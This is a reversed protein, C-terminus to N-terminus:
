DGADGGAEPAQEDESGTELARGATANEATLTGFYYGFIRGALPAAMEGGHGSNELFVSIAIEPSPWPAFGIFVSHDEGHPNQVTGTKGAVSIGPVAARKGSGKEGQVAELMGQRVVALTSESVNWSRRGESTVGRTLHPMMWRGNGGVAMAVTALKLPTTLLEGQGIALNLALGETWGRQGYRKDYWEPDPMFSRKEVPLDVGTPKDLGLKKMWESLRKVGLQRGLHYFYCDCSQAIAQVMDLRGHGTEKWCGYRRNGLIYFGPCYVPRDNPSVIGEELAAIATIIKFTSGPPYTAQVCRNILPYLKDSELAKWEQRSLGRAFANPDFSPNSAMALIGGDNVRVVTVSGAPFVELEREVWSQLGLDLALVLDQGPEAAREESSAPDVRIGLANVEACKRGDKGRLHSELQEEVGGRGIFDGPKYGGESGKGIEEATVEGVCGLLHAGLKGQPYWRLPRADIWVGPLGSAREEISAVQLKSLDGKITVGLPASFREKQVKNALWERDEELLIALAEVTNDLRDPDQLYESALPDIMCWFSPRNDALVMGERDLIRGRLAPVHEVRLRNNKSAERLEDAQIVQLHFLRVTVLGLALLTLVLLTAAKTSKEGIADRRPM